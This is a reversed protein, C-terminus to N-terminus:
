MNEYTSFIDQDSKVRQIFSFLAGLIYMSQHKLVYNCDYFLMPSQVSQVPDNIKTGFYKM